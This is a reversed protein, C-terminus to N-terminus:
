ETLQLMHLARYGKVHGQSPEAAPLPTGRILLCGLWGRFAPHGTPAAHPRMPHIEIGFRLDRTEGPSLQLPPLGTLQAGVDQTGAGDLCTAVGTAMVEGGLLSFQVDVAQEEPNRLTLCLEQRQGMGVGTRHLHKELPGSTQCFGSEVQLRRGPGHADAEQAGWALLALGAMWPLPTM